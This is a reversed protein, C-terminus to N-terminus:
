RALRRRRRNGRIRVAAPVILAALAALILSAPEPVTAFIVHANFYTIGPNAELLYIESLNAYAAGDGVDIQGGNFSQYNLDFTGYSLGDPGGVQLLSGSASTPGFADLPSLTGFGEIPAYPSNGYVTMSMDIGGSHNTVELYGSTSGRLVEIPENDFQVNIVYSYYGFWTGEIPGPGQAESSGPMTLLVALAAAAILSLKQNRIM